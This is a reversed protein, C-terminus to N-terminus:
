PAVIALRIRRNQRRGQASDNRAVPRTSGYSVVEIQGAPISHQEVLFRVVAAARAASLEWNSPYTEQLNKGVPTGDSHGEVRIQHGVYARLTDALSALAATGAPTLEASAPRFIEDVSLVELTRGGDRCVSLEYVLQEIRQELIRRDRYYQGSDIDDYFQISDRLVTLESQLTRNSAYMSDLEVAQRALLAPNQSACGVILLPLVLGAAFLIGCRM